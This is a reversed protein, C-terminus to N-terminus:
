QIADQQTDVVYHNMIAELYNEIAVRYEEKCFLIDSFLPYSKQWGANKRLFKISEPFGELNDVLSKTLNYENQKADALRLDKNLSHKTESLRSEVLEIQSKLENEASVADQYIAEQNSLQEQLDQVMGNFQTLEEVKSSTDHINRQSENELAEKQIHLVAIDKEAKYIKSQIASSDQNAKDVSDKAQQQQVRLVEVETKYKEIDSQYIALKAQEEYLE